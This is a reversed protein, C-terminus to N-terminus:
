IFKHKFVNQSVDSVDLVLVLSMWSYLIFRWYAHISWLRIVWLFPWGKEFLIVEKYMHMHIYELFAYLTCVERKHELSFGNLWGICFRIWFQNNKQKYQIQFLRLKTKNTVYVITPLARCLWQRWISLLRVFLINDLSTIIYKCLGLSWFSTKWIDPITVL